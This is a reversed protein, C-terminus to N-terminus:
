QREVDIKVVKDNWDGGLDGYGYKDGDSATVIKKQGKDDYLTLKVGPFVRYSSVGAPNNGDPFDAPNITWTGCSYYKATGSRGKRASLSVSCTADPTTTSGDQPAQSPAPAPAPTKFNRVNTTCWGLLSSFTQPVTEGRSYKMCLRRWKRKEDSSSLDASMTGSKAAQEYTGADSRKRRCQKTEFEKGMTWSCGTDEWGRDCKWKGNNLKRRRWDYQAWLSKKTKSRCRTKDGSGGPPATTPENEFGDDLPASSYIITAIALFATAVLVHEPDFTPM